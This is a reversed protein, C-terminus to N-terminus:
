LPEIIQMTSVQVEIVLEVKGGDQWRSGGAERWQRRRGNIVDRWTDTVLNNELLFLDLLHDEKQDQTAIDM